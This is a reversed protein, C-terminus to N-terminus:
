LTDAACSSDVPRFLALLDRQEKSLTLTTNQPEPYVEAATWLARRISSGTRIKVRRARLDELLRRTDFLYASVIV